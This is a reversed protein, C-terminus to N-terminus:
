ESICLKFTLIVYTYNSSNRFHYFLLLSLLNKKSKPRLIFNGSKHTWVEQYHQDPELTMRHCQLRRSQRFNSEFSQNMDPYSTISESSSVTLTTPTELSKYQNVVIVDYKVGYIIQHVSNLGFVRFM